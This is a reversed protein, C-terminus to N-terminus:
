KHARPYFANGARRAGLSTKQTIFKPPRGAIKVSTPEWLSLGMSYTLDSHMNKSRSSATGGISQIIHKVPATTGYSVTCLIYLYLMHVHLACM